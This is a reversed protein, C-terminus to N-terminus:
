RKETPQLYKKMLTLYQEAMEARSYNEVVQKKAQAGLQRAYAPDRLLQLIAEALAQSDEPPTLLGTRGHEIVDSMGKLATAVVPLGASMAELLAIPLGEARSPLVFIEAIALYDEVADQTGFLYVAQTLRLAEIQKELQGRLPGEGLIGLRVQPYEKLVLPLAQILIEHAKETVLRGVAVIFIEGDKLGAAKRAKTQNVGATSIPEIGNKILIINKPLVGEVIASQQARTSVVVLASAVQLNILGAHLIERGRSFNAALGHHTALRVPVRALWALPIGILNSDHTFSELADFRERHLLSWLNWLGTLFTWFAKWGKIKRHYSSLGYIPFGANKQWNELLNDRDYFFAVTVRHGRAHLWRAQDLLVKQAGGTAAQTGLLLISLRAEKEPQISM